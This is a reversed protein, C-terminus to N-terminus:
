PTFYTPQEPETSRSRTGAQGKKATFQAASLDLDFDKDKAEEVGFSDGVRFELLPENNKQKKKLKPKQGGQEELPMVM